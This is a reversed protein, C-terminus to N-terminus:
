CETSPEPPTSQKKKELEEELIVLFKEYQEPTLLVSVVELLDCNM